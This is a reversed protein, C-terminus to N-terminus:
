ASPRLSRRRLWAVLGIGAMVLGATSPEPIGENPTATASLNFVALGTPNPAGGPGNFVEFQITNTGNVFASGGTAVGYWGVGGPATASSGILAFNFATSTCNSTPLAGGGTGIGAGNVGIVFPCNDTAITGQLVVSAPNYGGPVTFTVQYIFYTSAPANLPTTLPQDSTLPGIWSAGGPLNGPTSQYWPGPWDAPPLITAASGSISINAPTSTSSGGINLVLYNSDTGSGQGTYAPATITDAQAAVAMVLFAAVSFFLVAKRGFMLKHM